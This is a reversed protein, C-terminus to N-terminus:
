LLLLSSVYIYIVLNVLFNLRFVEVPLSMLPFARRLFAILASESGVTLALKLPENPVPKSRHWGFECSFAKFVRVGLSKGFKDEPETWSKPDIHERGRHIINRSIPANKVLLTILLIISFEFILLCAVPNRFKLLPRM